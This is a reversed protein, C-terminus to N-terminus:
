PETERWTYKRGNWKLIGESAETPFVISIKGSKDKELMMGAGTEDLRSKQFILVSNQGVLLVSSKQAFQWGKGKGHIMLLALLKEDIENGWARAYPNEIKVTKGINKVTDNLEVIVAVDEIKDGDFDGTIKYPTARKEVTLKDACISKVLDEVSAATQAKVTVDPGNSVILAFVVFLLKFSKKIRGINM